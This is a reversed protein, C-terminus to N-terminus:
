GINRNGAAFGRWARALAPKREYATKRRAVVVFRDGAEGVSVGREGISRRRANFYGWARATAANAGMVTKGTAHRGDGLYFPDKKAM